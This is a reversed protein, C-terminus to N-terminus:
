GISAVQLTRGPLSSFLILKPHSMSLPLEPDEIKSELPRITALRLKQSPPVLTSATLWSSAVSGGGGLASSTTTTRSREPLM